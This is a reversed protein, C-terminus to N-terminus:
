LMASKEEIGISVSDMEVGGGGAFDGRAEESERDPSHVCVADEQPDEELSSFGKKLKPRKPAAAKTSGFGFVPLLRSARSAAKLKLKENERVLENIRDHAATLEWGGSERPDAEFVGEGGEDVRSLGGYVGDAGIRMPNPKDFTIVTSDRVAAKNATRSHEFVDSAAMDVGGEGDQGDEVYMDTAEDAAGEGGRICLLPRHPYFATWIESFLIWCFYLLSVAVVVILIGALVNAQTNDLQDSEFMIGAACLPVNARCECSM